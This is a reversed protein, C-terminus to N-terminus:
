CEKAAQPTKPLAVRNDYVLCALQLKSVFYKAFTDLDMEKIASFGHSMVLCPLNESSTSQPKFLWGRLTVNDATQFQIDEQAMSSSTSRQCTASRLDVPLLLKLSPGLELLTRIHKRAGTKTAAKM